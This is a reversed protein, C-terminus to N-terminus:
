WIALLLGCFSLASLSFLRSHPLSQKPMTMPLIGLVIVTPVSRPLSLTISKEFNETAPNYYTEKVCEQFPQSSEVVAVIAVLFAILLIWARSASIAKAIVKLM